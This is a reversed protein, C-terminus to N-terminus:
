HRQTRTHPPIGETTIKRLQFYCHCISMAHSPIVVSDTLPKSWREPLAKAGGVVASGAAIGKLLARRDKVEKNM